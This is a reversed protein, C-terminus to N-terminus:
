KSYIKVKIKDKLEDIVVVDEKHIEKILDSMFKLKNEGVLYLNGRVYDSHKGISKLYTLVPIVEFYSTIEEIESLVVEKKLEGKM